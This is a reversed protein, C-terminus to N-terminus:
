FDELDKAQARTLYIGLIQKVLKVIGKEHGEKLADEIQKRSL